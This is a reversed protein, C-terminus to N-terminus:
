RPPCGRRRHFRIRPAKRPLRPGSRHALWTRPSPTVATLGSLPIDGWRGGVVPPLSPMEFQEKDFVIRHLLGAIDSPLTTRTRVARHYTLGDNFGGPL